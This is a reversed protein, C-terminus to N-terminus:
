KLYGLKKYQERIFDARETIYDPSDSDQDAKLFHEFPPMRQVHPAAAYYAIIRTNLNFHNMRDEDYGDVVALLERLTSGYVEAPKLGAMYARKFLL